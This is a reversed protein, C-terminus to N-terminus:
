GENWSIIVILLSLIVERVGTLLTVAKPALTKEQVGLKELKLGRERLRVSRAPSIKPFIAKNTSTLLKIKYLREALWVTRELVTLLRLEVAM